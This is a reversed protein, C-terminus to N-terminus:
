VKVAAQLPAAWDCQLVMKCVYPMISKTCMYACCRSFCSQLRGERGFSTQTTQIKNNNLKKQNTTQM